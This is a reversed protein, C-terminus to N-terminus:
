FHPRMFPRLLREVGMPLPASITGTLVAERNQFWHAIMELGALRIAAPVDTASVGYGADYTVSVADDRTFTAPWSATSLLKIYGGDFRNHVLYSSSNFTRQVNDRDYYTIESVSILPALAIPFVDGVPFGSATDVWTQSVLARGLIGTAGDLHAMVAAILLALNADVEADANDDWRVQSRAEGVTILAAVPGDARVSSLNQM